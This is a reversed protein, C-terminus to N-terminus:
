EAKSIKTKSSTTKSQAPLKPKVVAKPTATKKAAPKAAVARKKPVVKVVSTENVEAKILNTTDPQVVGSVDVDGQETAMADKFNKVAGGVDSGINRLKKTGFILVVILLVILWHLPSSLGFM